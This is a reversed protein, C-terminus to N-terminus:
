NEGLMLIINSKQEVTIPGYLKILKIIKKMITEFDYEGISDDKAYKLMTIIDFDLSNSWLSRQIIKSYLKKDSFTDRFKHYIGSIVLSDDYGLEFVDGLKGKRNLFRYKEYFYIDDLSITHSYLIIEFARKICSNGFVDKDSFIANNFLCSLFVIIEKKWGKKIIHKIKDNIVVNFLVEIGYSDPNMKTELIIITNKMIGIYDTSGSSNEVFHDILNKMISFAYSIETYKIISWFDFEFHIQKKISLQETTDSTFKLISIQKGGYLEDRSFIYNKYKSYDFGNKTSYYLYVTRKEGNQKFNAISKRIYDLIYDRPIRTVTGAKITNSSTIRNLQNDIQNFIGDKGMNKFLKNYEFDDTYSTSVVKSSFSELSEKNVVDFKEESLWPCDWIFLVEYNSMSDHLTYANNQFDSLSAQRYYIDFQVEEIDNIIFHPIIIKEACKKENNQKLFELVLKLKYGSYNNKFWISISSLLDQVKPNIRTENYPYNGIIGIKISIENNQEDRNREIEYSFVRKQIHYLIKELIRIPKIDEISTIRSYPLSQLCSKAKDYQLRKTEVGFGNKYHRILNRKIKRFLLQKRLEFIADRETNVLFYYYNEISQVLSAYSFPAFISSYEVDSDESTFIGMNLLDFVYNSNRLSLDLDYSMWQPQFIKSLYNYIPNLYNSSNQFSLFLHGEENLLSKYHDSSIKLLDEKLEEDKLEIIYLAYNNYKQLLADSQDTPLDFFHFMESESIPSFAYREVYYSLREIYKNYVEDFSELHSSFAANYKIGDGAFSFMNTLHDFSKNEVTFESEELNTYIDRVSM